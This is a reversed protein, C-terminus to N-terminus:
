PTNGENEAPYAPTANVTLLLGDALGARLVSAMAFLSNEDTIRGSFSGDPEIVIDGITFQRTKLPAVIRPIESRAM